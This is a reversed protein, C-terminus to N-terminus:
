KGELTRLREASVIEARLDGFIIQYRGDDLKWRLLVKDKDKPGVTKGFYAVDSNAQLIRNFGAFGGAADRVKHYQKDHLMQEVTGPYSFGAAKYMEDRVPEGFTRTIHPYHGGCLEAYTKLAFTIEQLVKEPGHNEVDSKQEETYGPPAEALFLKPSLDINWQFHDMRLIMAPMAPSKMEYRLFVPLNSETGVWIEVPGPYADSDIKKGDIEFGWAKAGDIEKEGLKRDAQGSFAGLKDFLMFPSPKDQRTPMRQFTKTKPNIHIGPSGAPFIDTGDVGSTRPGGKLEMRYSKPALWYLTQTMTSIVPPKGPENPLKLEMSMTVKLSKAERINEAMKEMASAPNAAIGGWLLLFGLMAALGVGSLLAVRQRMTFAGMWHSIHNRLITKAPLRSSALLIAMLNKRAAEHGKDFHAHIEILQHRLSQMAEWNARCAACQSLHATMKADKAQGLVHRALQEQSICDTQKM